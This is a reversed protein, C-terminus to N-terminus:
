MCVAIYVTCAPPTLLIVTCKWCTSSHVSPVYEGHLIPNLLPLPLRWLTTNTWCHKGHRPIQPLIKSSKFNGRAEEWKLKILLLFVLYQLFNLSFIGIQQRFVASAIPCSKGGTWLLFDFNLYQLSNSTFDTPPLDPCPRPRDVYFILRQSDQSVTGKLRYCILACAKNFVTNPRSTFSPPVIYSPRCTLSLLPWRRSQRAMPWVRGSGTKGMDKIFQYARMYGGLQESGQYWSRFVMPLSTTSKRSFAGSAKLSFTIGMQKGCSPAFM